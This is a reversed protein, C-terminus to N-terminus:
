VNLGRGLYVPRLLDQLPRWLQPGAALVDGSLPWTGPTLGSLDGILGGAEAVLLVGAACDWPQLGPAWVADARGTAVQALASAASGGRRVDRVRPALAAIMQGSLPRQDERGLNVEVLAEPLSRQDGVATHREGVFTGGGVSAVTIRGLMPEAVAAALIRRDSRRVAAVSVAWDPRGYLYNTTGDIPDVAWEVDSSGPSAGGEEGLVGDDPRHTSLVARIEAEADRDARSVLDRPGTKEEIRLVESRERWDMAVRAGAEAAARAVTLLHQGATTM